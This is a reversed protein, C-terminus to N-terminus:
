VGRQEAVTPKGGGEVVEGGAYGRGNIYARVVDAKCGVGLRCGPEDGAFRDGVGDFVGVRGVDGDVSKLVVAVQEKGHGVIAGSTGVRGSV